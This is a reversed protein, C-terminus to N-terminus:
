NTFEVLYTQVNNAKDTEGPLPVVEATMQLPVNIFASPNPCTAPTIVISSLYTIGPKTERIQSTRKLCSTNLGVKSFFIKTQV